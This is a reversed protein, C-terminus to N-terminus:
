PGSRSVPIFLVKRTTVGDETDSRYVFKLISFRSKGTREDSFSSFLPNLTLERQGQVTRVVLLRHLIRFDRDGERGSTSEVLKWLLSWHSESESLFANWLFFFRAANWYDIPEEGHDRRFYFPFVAFSVRDEKWSGFGLPFLHFWGGDPRSAYHFLYLLGTVSTEGEEKEEWRFLLPFLHFHRWDDGRYWQVLSTWHALNADAVPGEELSVLPYLYAYTRGAAGGLFLAPIVRFDWSSEDGRYKLLPWPAHLSTETGQSEATAEGAPERTLELRVFPYLTSYTHVQKRNWPAEPEPRSVEEVADLGLLPWLHTGTKSERGESTEAGDEPEDGSPQPTWIREREYSIFSPFVLTTRRRGGDRMEDSHYFGPIGWAVVGAPSTKWHIMPLLVWQSLSRELLREHRRYVIGGLGLSSADEDVARDYFPLARVAFSGAGERSYHGLPWLIDLSSGDPSTGHHSLLLPFYRDTRAPAEPPGSRTTGYFVSFFEHGSPPDLREGAFYFPFVHTSSGDSDKKFRALPWLVHTSREEDRRSSWSLLAPLAFGRSGDARTWDAYLLTTFYRSTSERRGAFFLPFLHAHYSGGSSISLRALPIGSSSDRDSSFLSGVTWASKESDELHELISVIGAIGVRHRVRDVEDVHRYLTPPFWLSDERPGPFRSSRFLPWVVAHKEDHGDWRYYFPLVYDHGGLPGHRGFYLLPFISLRRDTGAGDLSTCYFPLVHHHSEGGPESDRRVLGFLSKWRKSGDEFEEHTYFPWLGEYLSQRRLNTGPPAPPAPAAEDIDPAPAEAVSLFSLVIALLLSSPRGGGDRRGTGRRTETRGRGVTQDPIRPSRM